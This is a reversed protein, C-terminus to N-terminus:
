GGPRHRISVAGAGEATVKQYELLFLMAQAIEDEDYYSRTGVGILHSYKGYNDVVSTKFKLYEAIVKTSQNGQLNDPLQLSEIQELRGVKM